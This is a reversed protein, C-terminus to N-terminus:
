GDLNQMPGEAPVGGDGESVGLSTAHFIGRQSRPADPSAEGIHGGIVGIDADLQQERREHRLRDAHLAAAAATGIAGGIVAGAVVGPPGAIAGMAAGAAAGALTDVAM